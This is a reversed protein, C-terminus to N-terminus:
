CLKVITTEDLDKWVQYIIGVCYLENAESGYLIGESGAPNKQVLVLLEEQSDFRMM